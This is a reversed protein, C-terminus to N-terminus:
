NRWNFPQDRQFDPVGIEASSLDQVFVNEFGLEWALDLAEDYEAAAIRRSLQSFETSRHVPEYQAMLSITVTRPLNDRIWVLTERTGALDEPLVLHRLIMGRVARGELDVVLNGVQGYMQLVATRATEVYDDADSFAAGHENSAYKLDPLYVDVIGDLIDITQRAEYGNTNYVVPLDLGRAAALSLAELFGPLHHSPSVPELNACGNRQLDLMKEALDRPTV